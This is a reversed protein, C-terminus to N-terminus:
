ASGAAFADVDGGAEEEVGQCGVGDVEVSCEVGGGRMLVERGVSVNGGAVVGGGRM